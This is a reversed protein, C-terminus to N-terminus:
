FTRAQEPSGYASQLQVHQLTHELLRALESLALFGVTASSGAMSHAMAVATEPVPQHLELSWEALDMQLRRSWEDAENLYVNYLPIGIRLPGIVKVLDEASTVPDAVVETGPEPAEVLADQLAPEPEPEAAPEPEPAPESVAQEYVGADVVVPEEVPAVPAFIEDVSVPAADPAATFGLDVFEDLFVPEAAEVVEMQHLPDSLFNTDEFDTSVDASVLAPEAPLEPLPAAAPEPAPPAMAFGM